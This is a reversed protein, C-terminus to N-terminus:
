KMMILNFMIGLHRVEPRPGNEGVNETTEREVRDLCEINNTLEQEVNDFRISLDELLKVISTTNPDMEYIPNQLHYQTGSRTSM